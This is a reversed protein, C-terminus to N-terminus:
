ENLLIDALNQSVPTAASTGAGICQKTTVLSKTANTRVAANASKLGTKIFDILDRVPVGAIGFERVATDIWVYNEAQMKVAKQKSM